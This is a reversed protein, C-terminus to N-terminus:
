FYRGSKEQKTRNPSSGFSKATLSLQLKLGPLLLVPKGSKFTFNQCYDYDTWSFSTNYTEEPNSMTLNVQAHLACIELAKGGNNFVELFGRFQSVVERSNGNGDPYDRPLIIVTSNTIRVNDPIAFDIPYKYDIQTLGLRNLKDFCDASQNKVSNNTSTKSIGTADRIENRKWCQDGDGNDHWACNMQPVTCSMCTPLSPCLGPCQLTHLNTTCNSGSTKAFCRKSSSCWGCKPDSQCQWQWHDYDSCSETTRNSFPLPIKQPRQNLYGRYGGLIIFEDKWVISQHAFIGEELKMSAKQPLFIHCELSYLLVFTAYCTEDKNHVHSYGGLITLYHGVIHATHFARELTLGSPVGNRRNDVKLWTNSEILYLYISGSLKSFRGVDATGIGGYLVLLNKSPWFTMSHGLLAREEAKGCCSSLILEWESPQNEKFRYLSHSFGGWRTGGGYVYVYSGAKTMTHYALAPLRGNSPILSWRKEDANFYFLEDTIGSGQIHGGFLLFGHKHPICAHGYRHAPWLSANRSTKLIRTTNNADFESVVWLDDLVDNLDYGGFIYLLNDLQVVCHAVRALPSKYNATILYRSTASPALQIEKDHESSSTANTPHSPSPTTVIEQCALGTRSNNCKCIHENQIQVCEGAGSCNLPCLSIFYEAKFGELTYNPDSFLLLLM